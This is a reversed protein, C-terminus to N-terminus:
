ICLFSGCQFQYQPLLVCSKSGVATHKVCFAALPAGQKGPVGDGKRRLTLFSVPSQDAARVKVQLKSDATAGTLVPVIIPLCLKMQETHSKGLETLFETAAVQM